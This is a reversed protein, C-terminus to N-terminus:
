TVQKLVEERASFVQERRSKVDQADNSPLIQSSNEMNTESTRLEHAEEELGAETINRFSGRQENIRMIISSLDHNSPDLDPWASLSISPQDGM